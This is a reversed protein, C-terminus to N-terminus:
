DLNLYKSYSENGMRLDDDFAVFTEFIESPCIYVTHDLVKFKKKNSHRSCSKLVFISFKSFVKYCEKNRCIFTSSSMNEGSSAM